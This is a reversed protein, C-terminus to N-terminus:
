PIQLIMPTLKCVYTYSSPLQLSRNPQCDHLYCISHAWIVPGLHAQNEM